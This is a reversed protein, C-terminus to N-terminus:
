RTLWPLSLKWVPQVTPPKTVTASARATRTSTASPTQTVAPPTATSTPTERSPVPLPGSRRLITMGTGRNDAALLLEGSAAVPLRQWELDRSVRPVRAVAVLQPDSPVAVDLFQLTMGAVVAVTGDFVMSAAGDPAGASGVMRPRGPDSVDVVYLGAPGHIAAIFAHNGRVAISTGVAPFLRLQGTLRPSAPQSIDLSYLGGTRALVFANSGSVAVSGIYDAYDGIPLLFHAIERISASESADIVYLGAAGVAVFVHDGAVTIAGGGYLIIRFDVSVPLRAIERSAQGPSVDSFRVALDDLTVVRRPWSGDGPMLAVAHVGAVPVGAVEIPAAPDSLDIIHVGYSADAVYAIKGDLVMDTVAWRSLPTQGVVHALPPERVDVATISGDLLYVTNGVVVPQQVSRLPLHAVEKAAAPTSIDVLTLGERDVLALDGAVTISRAPTTNDGVQAVAIQRAPDRIDLVTLYGQNGATGRPGAPAAPAPPPSAPEPRAAFPLPIVTPTAEASLVYAHEAGLAVDVYGGPWASHPPGLDVPNRPDAVSVLQLGRYGQAVAALSGRVALGSGGATMKHVMVPATPDVADVLTLASGVAYVVRGVAVLASVGDPFPMRGGPRPSAPDTLDYTHLLSPAMGSSVGYAIGESVALHNLALDEVPGKGVLRLTTPDATDWVTLRSGLALYLYPGDAAMVRPTAGMQEVLTFTPTSTQSPRIGGRAIATGLLLVALGGALSFGARHRLGM